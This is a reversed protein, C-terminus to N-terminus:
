SELNILVECVLADLMHHPVYNFTVIVRHVHTHEVHPVCCSADFSSQPSVMDLEVICGM